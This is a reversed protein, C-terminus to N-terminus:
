VALDQSTRRLAMYRSLLRKPNKSASWKFMTASGEVCEFLSVIAEMTQDQYAPM